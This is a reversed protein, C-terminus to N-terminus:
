SLDILLVDDIFFPNMQYGLRFPDFAVLEAIARAARMVLVFVKSDPIEHVQHSKAYDDRFQEAAPKDTFVAMADPFGSNSLTAIDHYSINPAGGPQTTAIRALFFLPYEFEFENIKPM